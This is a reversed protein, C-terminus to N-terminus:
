RFIRVPVLPDWIDAPHRYPYLLHNKMQDASGRTCFSVTLWTCHDCTAAPPRVMNSILPWVLSTTSWRIFYIPQQSTNPCTRAKPSKKTSTQREPPKTRNCLTVSLILHCNYFIFYDPCPWVPLYASQSWTWYIYYFPASKLCIFVVLDQQKTSLLM